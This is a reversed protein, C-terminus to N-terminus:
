SLPDRFNDEGIGATKGVFGEGAKYVAKFLSDFNERQLLRKFLGHTFDWHLMQAFPPEGGGEPGVDM